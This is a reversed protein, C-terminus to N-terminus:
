QKILNHSWTKPNKPLGGRRKPYAVEVNMAGGETSPKKLKKWELKKIIKWNEKLYEGLDKAEDWDYGSEFIHSGGVFGWRHYESSLEGSLSRPLGQATFASDIIGSTLGYALIGSFSYPTGVYNGHYYGYLPISEDKGFNLATANGAEFEYETYGFGKLYGTISGVRAGVYFGGVLSTNLDGVFALDNGMVDKYFASEYMKIDLPYNADEPLDNATNPKQHLQRGIPSGNAYYLDITIGPQYIDPLNQYKMVATEKYKSADVGIKELIWPSSYHHMSAWYTLERMRYTDGSNYAVLFKEAVEGYIALHHELGDMDTGGIPSNSAFQYPTLMPYKQTLPDVNPFKYPEYDDESTSAGMYYRMGYDQWSIDADNEKGNFGYRYNQKFARNPLVSGFPRYDNQSLVDITTFKLDSFTTLVNGLHNSIEYNKNGLIRKGAIGQGKYIGIRSSGYITQETLIGNEYIALTNGSADRVYHATTFETGKQTNKATKNGTADYSFVYKEGTKTVAALKGYVSWDMLKNGQTKSEKTLSGIKDYQYSTNDVSNLQNNQLINYTYTHDQKNIRHKLINGNGDYSFKELYNGVINKSEKIRNLQDYKYLMTNNGFKSLNTSWPPM